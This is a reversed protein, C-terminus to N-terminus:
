LLDGLNNAVLKSELDEVAAKHEALKRRYTETAAARSQKVRKVRSLLNKVQRTQEGLAKNLREIEEVADIMLARAEAVLRQHHGPAGTPLITLDNAIRRLNARLAPQNRRM